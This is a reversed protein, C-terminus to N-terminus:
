VQAVEKGLVTMLPGEGEVWWKRLESPCLSVPSIMTIKLLM